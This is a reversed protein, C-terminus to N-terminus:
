QRMTDASSRRPEPSGFQRRFARVFERQLHFKSWGARSALWQLDLSEARDRSVTNILQLIDRLSPM